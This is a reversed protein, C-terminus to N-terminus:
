TGLMPNITTRLKSLRALGQEIEDVNYASFGLLLGQRKMRGAYYPSLPRLVVGYDMAKRAIEQDDAVQDLPIIVHMGTDTSSLRLGNDFVDNLGAILRVQRARYLSRMRRIHAVFLGRHMFESLVMQEILSAHRDVVARAKAFPEALDPPVVVYGLRFSPLLIKSFTGLHITRQGADLGHISTPTHGVYRFENDYDDEVIWAGCRSALEILASRRQLSLTAGLPYHRSSSTFILRPSPHKALAEEICLGQDDVEVPCLSAGNAGFISRTGVYGPEELWVPDGPDFLMRSVLDLSQQSGTTIIIQESTCTMGRFINLHRAIARRLPEYGANSTDALIEGRLRGSTENLLRLWTKIPFERLDPLDPMFTMPREPFADTASATLSKGRRSLSRFPYREGVTASTKRELPSRGPGGTAELVYTGDGIRSSLFGEDILRDFAQLIVNRSVGIEEAFVRTSPLKIGAPIRGSEIAGRLHDAIQQYKPLASGDELQFGILSGTVATKSM